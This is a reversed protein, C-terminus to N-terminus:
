KCVLRERHVQIKSERLFIPELGQCIRAEGGVMLCYGETLGWIGGSTGADVYHVGKASLAAARRVDDHFNTNGGDIITDGGSLSEALAHVTAETPDSPPNPEDTNSRPPSSRLM